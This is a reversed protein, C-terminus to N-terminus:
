MKMIIEGSSVPGTKAVTFNEYDDSNNVLVAITDSYGAAKIKNTNFTLLKQGKKVQDGEAVFAEFGEGNMKVTDVGVHILMEIGNNGAIGVAHKTEAVTVITGDFPAAVTEESPIIGVGDGLIGGAFTADPIEERAIVTGATPAAVVAEAAEAAANATTEKAAAANDSIAAAPQADAEKAKQAAPVVDEFGLIFTVIAAVVIDVVVAIAMAAITDQFIPLALITSYGYVYATAGMAGAVIGGAAGGIMIGLMPKKLRFNVGYLAPETAGAVICGFALSLCEARFEKSKTRLAVGICAGGEAMNHLIYSPRFFVDYGPDAFAQVMFPTVAHHMGTMVLWPMCAALLGIAVPGCTSSAWLFVNVILGGVMDGLPGLITIAAVYTIGMTLMGVLVTRLIGPIIKTFLKEVYCACLGILLAPLLTSKYSVNMVPIMFITVQTGADAAESLLSIFDPFVLAAAVAMSYLPTSGLKKAAGYAVFIPMFYFPMDALQSLLTYASADAFSPFALTALLLFVKLMGGAVLGPILPTVAASVFGVVINVYDGFKKKEKEGSTEPASAGGSNENFLRSAENYVPIVNKGFVMQLEDNTFVVGLVGEAKKIAETDVAKKNKVFFRLRTSCHTVSSINGYGGALEFLTIATQKFDM